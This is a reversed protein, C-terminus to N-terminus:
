EPPMSVFSMFRLEKSLVDTRTQPCAPLEHRRPFQPEQSRDKPTDAESEDSSDVYVVQQTPPTRAHSVPTALDVVCQPAPLLCSFSM